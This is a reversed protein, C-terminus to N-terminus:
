PCLYAKAVGVYSSDAGLPLESIGSTADGILTGAALDACIAHGYDLLQSDDLAVYGAVVQHAGYLFDSEAETYTPEPTPTAVPETAEPTPEATPVPETPEPAPTETSVAAPTEVPEPQNLAYATGGGVAALALVGVLAATTKTKM